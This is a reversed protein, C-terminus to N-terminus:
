FQNGFAEGSGALVAAHIARSMGSVEVLRLWRGHLQQQRMPTVRSRSLSNDVTSRLRKAWRSNLALTDDCYPNVDKLYTVPLRTNVMAILALPTSFYM